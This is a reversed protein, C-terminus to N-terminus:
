EPITLIKRIKKFFSTKVNKNVIQPETKSLWLLALAM